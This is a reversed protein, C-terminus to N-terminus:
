HMEDDVGGSPDVTGNPGGHGQGPNSSDVGDLNNGHGNNPHKLSFSVLLVVDQLDFCTKSRDTQGIEMMVLACLPGVNVKGASDLYPKLYSALGASQYLSFTTPPTDGTKLTVVQFNHSRTTYFPTWASNKVYRGGFDITQGSQVKKTYLAKSSNVDKQTGYFLQTYAAGNLSMRAEAYLDPSSATQSPDCATVTTGIIQVSVYLDQKPILTGPPNITVMDSITSPYLINWTLTPRTGTQVITPFADLTGVPIIPDTSQASSFVSLFLGFLSVLSLTKM